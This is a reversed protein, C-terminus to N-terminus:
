LRVNAYPVLPRPAPSSVCLRSMATLFDILRDLNIARSPDARSAAAVRAFDARIAASAADAKMQRYAEDSLM